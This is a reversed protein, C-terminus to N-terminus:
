VAVALAGAVAGTVSVAVSVTGAGAVAGTVSVAVAVASSASLQKSGARRPWVALPKYPSPNPHVPEVQKSGASKALFGFTSRAM